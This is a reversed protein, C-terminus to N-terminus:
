GIPPTPTTDSRPEAGRDDTRDDEHRYLRQVRRGLICMLEYSITGAKAAQEALSIFDNGQAGYVVVEDGLEADPVAALSIPTYDMCVRGVVPCRRGRMLMVGRNSFDRHYGDAYGIAVAGIRESARLTYTRGYGVTAGAVLERVSVLRTKLTLGQRLAAKPLPDGPMSAGHLAIGPRASNFPPQLAQPLGAIGASNAFHRFAFHIGKAELMRILDAVEQIQRLTDPDALEAAPFHSYIGEVEIGPLAAIEAIAAPAQETRLGLHGMGSDIQFQVKVARSQRAAERSLLRGTALDPVSAIIGRAVIKSIEEPVSAGLIQVPLALGLDLIEEAEELCAVLLRRAGAQAMARAAQRAGLGYADAKVVPLIEAPHAQRALAQFNARWAATDIEAWVRPLAPKLPTSTLSM